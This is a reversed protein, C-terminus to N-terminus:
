QRRPKAPHHLSPRVRSSDLSFEGTTRACCQLCQAFSSLRKQPALFERLSPGAELREVFARHEPPMYDRMESLYSRLEDQAHVVGLLADLAPVIGSQAGTEGRFKQGAGGYADVGEYIMGDPLGPHNAWGHIYPRVRHFYIYPDCGEPMRLLIQHMTEVARSLRELEAATEAPRDNAVANQTAIMAALAPAAQAEIAVHVLVFWEEDRGGFFNQLMVINGLEIPRQTDLRRWNDLAYSAYSLVPPRGLKTALQHWPVALSSPVARPIGAEGWVYAHGLFSLIMMARRLAADDVLVTADLLPMADVTARVGGAVLLKPLERGLEDWLEFGAPLRQLPDPKPLFGTTFNITHSQM